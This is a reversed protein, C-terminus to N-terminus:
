RGASPVEQLPTHTNHHKLYFETHGGERRNPLCQVTAMPKTVVSTDRPALGVERTM